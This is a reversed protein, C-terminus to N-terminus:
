GGSFVGGARNYASGRRLFMACPGAPWRGRRGSRGHCPLAADPAARGRQGGSRGPSRRRAAVARAENPAGGSLITHQTQSRTVPNRHAKNGSRPPMRKAPASTRGHRKARYHHQAANRSCARHETAADSSLPGTAGCRRRARVPEPAAVGLHSRVWCCVGSLVCSVGAHVGVCGWHQQALGLRVVLSPAASGPKVEVTARCRGWVRVRAAICRWGRLM